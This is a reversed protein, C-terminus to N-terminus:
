IIRDERCVLLVQFIQMCMCYACAFLVLLLNADICSIARKMQKKEMRLDCIRAHWEEEKYEEARKLDKLCSSHMVVRSIQRIINLVCRLAEIRM